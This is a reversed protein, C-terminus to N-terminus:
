PFMTVDVVQHNYTVSLNSGGGNLREIRIVHKEPTKSIIWWCIVVQHNLRVAIIIIIICNTCLNEWESCIRPFFNLCVNQRIRVGIFKESPLFPNNKSRHEENTPEDNAKPKFSLIKTSISVGTLKSYSKSWSLTKTASPSNNPAQRVM